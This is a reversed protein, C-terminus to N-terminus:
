KKAKVDDDEDEDEEEDEDDPQDILKSSIVMVNAINNEQMEQIIAGKIQEEGKLGKPLFVTMDSNYVVKLVKTM